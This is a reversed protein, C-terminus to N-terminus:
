DQLPLLFSWMKRWCSKQFCKIKQVSGKLSYLGVTSTNCRGRVKLRTSATASLPNVLLASSNAPHQRPSRRCLWIYDSVRLCQFSISDAALFNLFGFFKAFNPLFISIVFAMKGGVHNVNSLWMEEQRQKKRPERPKACSWPFSRFCPVVQRASAHRQRCLV